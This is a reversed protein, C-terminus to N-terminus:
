TAAEEQTAKEDEVERLKDLAKKDTESAVGRMNRVIMPPIEPNIFKSDEKSALKVIGSVLAAEALWSAVTFFTFQDEPDETQTDFWVNIDDETVEQDVFVPLVTFVTDMDLVRQLAALGLAESINSVGTNFLNAAINHLLMQATLDSEIGLKANSIKIARDVRAVKRHNLDITYTKGLIKQEVAYKELNM